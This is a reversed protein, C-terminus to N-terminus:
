NDQEYNGKQNQMLNKHLRLLMGHNALNRRFMEQKKDQELVM